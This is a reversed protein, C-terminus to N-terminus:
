LADVIDPFGTIAGVVDITVLEFTSIPAKRQLQIYFLYKQQWHFLWVQFEHIEHTSVYQVRETFWEYM